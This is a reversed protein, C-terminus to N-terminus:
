TNPDFVEIREQLGEKIESEVQHLKDLRVM